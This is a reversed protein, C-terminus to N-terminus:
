IRYKEIYNSVEQEVREIAGLPYSKIGDTGYTVKNSDRRSGYKVEIKCAQYADVTIQLVYMPPYVPADIGVKLEYFSNNHDVWTTIRDAHQNKKKAANVADWLREGIQVQDIKVATEFLVGDRQRMLQELKENKLFTFHGPTIGMRELTKNPIGLITAKKWTLHIM